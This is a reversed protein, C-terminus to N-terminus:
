GELAEIRAMCEQLAKIAKMYLVSYKIGKVNEKVEKVDGIEKGDPITDGDEYLTGFESSMKIDYSKPEGESILGPSVAECEQAVLGIQIKKGAGYTAVDDKREFNRVRLAKIDDWQSSADTINQKIREDSIQGYANDHNQIDGDGKIDLRLASSDACEFFVATHNDPAAGSFKMEIGEPNAHTNEIDLSHLNSAETFIKVNGGADMRLMTFPTSESTQFLTADARVYLGGTGPTHDIVSDSGDFSIQLDNGTGLRLVKSDALDVSGSSISFQTAAAAGFSFTDGDHNYMLYGRNNAGDDGFAVLGINDNASLITIGAPGNNEIVLEDGSANASGSSDATKIHIGAGLDKTNVVGLTPTTITSGSQATFTNATFQFDDAGAIKIDIQDDTDASITTDADADLILKDSQGQLDLAKAEGIPLAVGTHRAYIVDGSAVATGVITLTTGSVTYNTTPQQIVNNIVVLLGQESIPEQSLTFTTASGDGTFSDTTYGGFVDTPLNQGVYSM